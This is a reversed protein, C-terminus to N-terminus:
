SALSFYRTIQQERGRYHDGRAGSGRQDPRPPASSTVPVVVEAHPRENSVAVEAQALEVTRAPWLGFAWSCRTAAAVIYWDIPV